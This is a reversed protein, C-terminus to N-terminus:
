MKLLFEKALGVYGAAYQHRTEELLLEAFDDAEPKQLAYALLSRKPESSPTPRVDCRRVIHLQHKAAIDTFESARDFPLIVSFQGRQRLLTAATKTLEAFTLQDNHRAITRSEDSPKISAEFYPPNCVILDFSKASTFARADTHQATLRNAWPSAQFNQRAQECATQDIEIATIAANSFRQALMLALLGCGTGIDLIGSVNPATAWSGLLISDTGVQQGCLDDDVSFQKFRFPM